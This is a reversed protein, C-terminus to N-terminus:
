RDGRRTLPEEDFGDISYTKQRGGSGGIQGAQMDSTSSRRHHERQHPQQVMGSGTSARRSSMASNQSNRIDALARDVDQPNRNDFVRRLDSDGLKSALAISFIDGSQVATVGHVGSSVLGMAAEIAVGPEIGKDMLFSALVDLGEGGGGNQQPAQSPQPPPPQPKSQSNVKTNDTKNKPIPVPVTLTTEGPVAGVPVVVSFHYDQGDQNVSAQLYSGPAADAPVVMQVYVMESEEAKPNNNSTQPPLVPPPKVQEAVAAPPPPRQPIEAVQQQVPPPTAKIPEPEPESEPSYPVGSVGEGFGIDEELEAEVLSHSILFQAELRQGAHDSTEEEEGMDSDEGGGLINVDRLALLVAKGGVSEPGEAEAETSALDYANRAAHELRRGLPRDGIQVLCGVLDSLARMKEERVSALDRRAVEQGKLTEAKDRDARRVDEPNDREIADLRERAHEFLRAALHELNREKRKVLTSVYSVFKSALDLHELSCKNM